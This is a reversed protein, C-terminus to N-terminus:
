AFPTSIFFSRPSGFVLFIDLSVRDRWRSWQVVMLVALLVIAGQSGSWFTQLSV